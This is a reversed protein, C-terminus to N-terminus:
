INGRKGEMGKFKYIKKTLVLMSDRHIEEQAQWVVVRQMQIESARHERLLTRQKVKELQINDRVNESTEIQKVIEGEIEIM